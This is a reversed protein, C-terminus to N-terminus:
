AEDDARATLRGSHKHTRLCWINVKSDIKEHMRLKWEQYSNNQPQPTHDHKANANWNARKTCFPYRFVSVAPHASVAIYTCATLSSTRWKWQYFKWDSDCRERRRNEYAIMKIKVYVAAIHTETILESTPVNSGSPVTRHWVSYISISWKYFCEHNNM